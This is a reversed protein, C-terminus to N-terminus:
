WRLLRRGAVAGAASCLVLALGYWLAVYSPLTAICSLAYLSAGIAGGALGAVAGALGPRTVAQHRLVLLLALVPLLGLSSIGAICIWMPIEAPMATSIWGAREALLGIALLPFAWVLRHWAIAAGPRGLQPILSLSAGALALLFLARILFDPQFIADALDARLGFVALLLVFAPAGSLLLARSLGLIPPPAMAAGNRTLEDILKETRGPM